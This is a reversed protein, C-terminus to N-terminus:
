SRVMKRGLRCGAFQRMSRDYGIDSSPAIPWAMLRRNSADFVHSLQQVLRGLDGRAVQFGQILTSYRCAGLSQGAQRFEVLGQLIVRLVGGGYKFHEVPEGAVVATAPRRNKPKTVPPDSGAVSAAFQSAPAHSWHGPM